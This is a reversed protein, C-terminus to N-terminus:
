RDGRVVGAGQGWVRAPVPTRPWVRRMRRGMADRCELRFEWQQGM